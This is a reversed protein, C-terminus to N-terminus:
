RKAVIGINYGLDPMLEKNPQGHDAKYKVIWQFFKLFVVNMDSIFIYNLFHVQHMKNKHLRCATIQFLSISDM